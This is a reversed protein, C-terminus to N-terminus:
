TIRLAVADPRPTRIRRETLLPARTTEARTACKRPRQEAGAQKAPLDKHAPDAKTRVAADHDPRVRHGQPSPHECMVWHAVRLLIELYHARQLRQSLYPKGDRVQTADEYRDIIIALYFYCISISLSM